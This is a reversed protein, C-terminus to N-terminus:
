PEGQELQYNGAAVRVPIGDIDSPLNPLGTKTDGVYVILVPATSLGSPDQGISIMRVNPNSMILQELQDRAHRARAWWAQDPQSM